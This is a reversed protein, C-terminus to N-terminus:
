ALQRLLRRVFVVKREQPWYPNAQLTKVKAMISDYNRHGQPVKEEVLKSLEQQGVVPNAAEIEPLTSSEFQAIAQSKLEEFEADDQM